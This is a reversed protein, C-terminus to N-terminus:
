AREGQLRALIRQRGIFGLLPALEPGSSEGTLALRLPMFLGRGKKGTQERIAKTWPGWTEATPEGDPLLSVAAECVDADEIVPTIPATAVDWWIKAESVRVINPRVAEWFAAGGTVGAAELRDAVRAYPLLQLLKANLVVLDNPDFRAPARSIKEFAFQTALDATELVPEIADSTGILAALSAVTQPELGDERFNGVALDGMRKSLAAGDAGVMLSHHAFAPPTAGLAEFIQIQIATNTVHDEGRVIHTVGMDADDVVSTFTYLYSGDERIMVPDSLSGVDVSQEGRVLDDWAVPTPVPTLDGDSATNALRFRWHPKRGEAELAAREEDSLRLASRDYIPPLGRARQLRRKRDIEDTTEFCPYLRGAAKLKEAAATFLDTRESQKEIRDWTLGLWSMDELIADAYELRARERDTDDFRLVFSGGERRAYLWNLIATRVNGIHIRGTPSPAFRVIPSSATM